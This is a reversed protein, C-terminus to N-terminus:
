ETYIYSTREDHFHMIPSPAHLVAAALLLAEILRGQVVCLGLAAFPVCPVLLSAVLRPPPPLAHCVLECWRCTCVATHLVQLPREFFLPEREARERETSGSCCILSTGPRRNGAVCLRKRRAFGHVGGGRARAIGDEYKRRVTSIRYLSTRSLLSPCPQDEKEAVIIAYAPRWLVRVLLLFGPFPFCAAVAALKM